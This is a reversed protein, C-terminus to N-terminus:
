AGIYFAANVRWIVGTTVPCVVTMTTAAATGKVPKPFEFKQEVSLGQASIDAPFSFTPTGVIGTSTVLVPTAAPTLVATSFKVIQLMTLYNFLGVGASPITLTVAASAAGTASIMSAPLDKAYIFEVALAARFTVLAVGSTYASMRIRVAKAGGPLELAFQGNATISVVYLESIPNFIPYQAYNTGDFSIEAIMTGVFTGRVDIVASTEQGLGIVAEANLAGLNAASRADIISDGGQAPILRQANGSPDYIVSM